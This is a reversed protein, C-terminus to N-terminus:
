RRPVPRNGKVNGAAWGVITRSGRTGRSDLLTSHLIPWVGDSGDETGEDREEKGQENGEEERGHDEAWEKELLTLHALHRLSEAPAAVVVLVNLEVFKTSDEFATASGGSIPGVHGHEILDPGNGRTDDVTSLEGLHVSRHEEGTGRPSPVGVLVREDVGLFFM